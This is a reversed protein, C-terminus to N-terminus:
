MLALSDNEVLQTVIELEMMADEDGDINRAFLDDVYVTPTLHVLRLIVEKVAQEPHQTHAQRASKLIEQHERPLLRFKLSVITRTLDLTETTSNRERKSKVFKFIREYCQIASQYCKRIHPTVVGDYNEYNALVLKAFQRYSEITRAHMQGLDKERIKRADHSHRLGADYDGKSYLCNAISFHDEAIFEDVDTLSQLIELSESYRQIAQDYNTLRM